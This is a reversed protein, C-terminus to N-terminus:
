VQGLDGDFDYSITLHPQYEPHDWTAGQRKMDEHRWSLASSSFLLVKAEGSPGFADMLRPGGAPITLGGKGNDSWNEGMKMWDVPQRSFTITVHMDDAPLTTEFGQAKFHEIIE